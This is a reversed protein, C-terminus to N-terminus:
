LIIVKQMAMFEAKLNNEINQKKKTIVNINGLVEKSLKIKKVEM